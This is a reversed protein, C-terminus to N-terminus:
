EFDFDKQDKYIEKLYHNTKSYVEKIDNQFEDYTKEKCCGCEEFDLFYM